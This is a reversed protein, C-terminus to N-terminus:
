FTRKARTNSLLELLTDKQGWLDSIEVQVDGNNQRFTFSYSAGHLRADKNCRSGIVAMPLGDIIEPPIVVENDLLGFENSQGFHIATNLEGDHILGCRVVHYLIEEVTAMGPDKPRRIEDHIFKFSIEPTQVGLAMEIIIDRNDSLFTKYKQNDYQLHTYTKSATAAVAICAPILAAEHDGAALKDLTERVRKGISM